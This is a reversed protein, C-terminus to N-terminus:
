LIIFSLIFVGVVALFHAYALLIFFGGYATKFTKNMLFVQRVVIFAFVGYIGEVVLILAKLAFLFNSLDTTM